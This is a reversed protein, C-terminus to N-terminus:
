IYKFDLTVLAYSLMETSYDSKIKLYCNMFVAFNYCQSGGFIYGCLANTDFGIQYLHIWTFGGEVDNHYHFNENRNSNIGGIGKQVLGEDSGTYIIGHLLLYSLIFVEHVM